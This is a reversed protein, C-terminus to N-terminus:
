PILAPQRTIDMIVIDPRLEQTKNVAEVGNAAEGVVQIDPQTELLARLGERVIVHDDVILIRMKNMQNM